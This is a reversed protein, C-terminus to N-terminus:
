RWEGGCGPCRRQDEGKARGWFRLLYYFTPVKTAAEIERCLSRGHESLGSNPDALERYAGIELTGSGLWINDHEVYYSQWYYSEAVDELQTRNNDGRPGFIINTLIMTHAPSKDSTSAGM